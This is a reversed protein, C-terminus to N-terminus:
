EGYLGARDNVVYHRLDNYSLQLNGSEDGKIYGKDYLKQITPRAWDPMFDDIYGYKPLLLDAMKDIAEATKDIQEQLRKLADMDVTGGRLLKEVNSIFTAWTYPKGARLMQPCNKGSWHNHQKINEIPIVHQKCLKATLKVANDTAKLLDGDANM